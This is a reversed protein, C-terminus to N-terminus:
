LVDGPSQKREKRKTAKAELEQSSFASCQLKDYSYACYNGEYYASCLFIFNEM